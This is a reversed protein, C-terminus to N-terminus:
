APKYVLRRMMVASVVLFLFNAIWVGQPALRGDKAMDLTLAFIPYYILVTPLFVIGFTTMTDSAKRRIALPIGIMSMALCTFGSAWRRHMETGLRHLRKRSQDVASRRVSAEPSSIQETRSTLISFCTHVAIANERRCIDDAQRLSAAPLDHMLMHSPHATLLDNDPDMGLPIAYVFTDPFQFSAVGGVDANGNAMSLQLTHDDAQYTLQASQATITIPKSGERRIRIEPHILDRGQVDRVVMSFQDHQFSLDRKLRSYAIREVSSVVVGQVGDFGWTFAFNILGVTAFSLSATLLVAPIISPLLSIGVSQMAVFENDASMRGYVICVSCLSTGPVALSLANPLSFPILRMAGVLGIGQHIAERAVGIFMVLMTIVFLSVCFIVFMERAIRWQITTLM